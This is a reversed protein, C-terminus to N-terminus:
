INVKLVPKAVLAVLISLVLLTILWHVDLGVIPTSRGPYYVEISEFVSTSPISAEGSYLLRGFLGGGRLRSLRTFNEGVVLPVEVKDDGSGFVLRYEGARSPTIRWDVTRLSEVRCPDNNDKACGEPLTIRDGVGKWKADPKLTVKVRARQGESIPRHEYRLGIQAMILVFPIAMIVMPKFSYGLLRIAQWLIQRQARFTVSLDDKFLRTAILHASILRRVDGIAAQNSTYRWILLMVVGTIASIIWLAVMPSFVSLLSFALDGLWNMGKTLVDM